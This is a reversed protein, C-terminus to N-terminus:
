RFIQLDDRGVPQQSYAIGSIALLIFASLFQKM